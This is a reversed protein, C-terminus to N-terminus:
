VGAFRVGLYASSGYFRKVANLLSGHGHYLTLVERLAKTNMKDYAKDLDM